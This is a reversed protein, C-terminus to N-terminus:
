SSRGTRASRRRRSAAGRSSEASAAGGFARRSLAAGGGGPRNARHASGHGRAADGSRSGRQSGRSGRRRARALRQHAGAPGGTRLGRYGRGGGSGGPPCLHDHRGALAAASAGNAQHSRARQRREAEELATSRDLLARADPDALAIDKREALQRAEALRVGDLAYDDAREHDLWDRVSM